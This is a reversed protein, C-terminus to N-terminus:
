STTILGWIACSSVAYGDDHGVPFPLLVEPCEKEVDVGEKLFLHDVVSYENYFLPTLRCDFTASINRYTMKNKRGNPEPGNLRAMSKFTPAASANFCASKWHKM